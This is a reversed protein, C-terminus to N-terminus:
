IWYIYVTWVLKLVGPCRASGVSNPLGAQQLGTSEWEECSATGYQLRLEAPPFFFHDKSEEDQGCFEYEMAVAQTSWKAIRSKTSLWIQSPSLLGIRRSWRLLLSGSLVSAAARVEGDSASNKRLKITRLLLLLWCHLPPGSPPFPSRSLIYATYLDGSSHVTLRYKSTYKRYLAVFCISM